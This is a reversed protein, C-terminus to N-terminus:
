LILLSLGLFVLGIVGCITPGLWLSRFAEIVADEPAAAHYVVTVTEGLRYPAPYSRTRSAFRVTRGDSLEFAVVPAFTVDNGSGRHTNLDVIVGPARKAQALWARTRMTAVVAVGLLIAATGYFVIRMLISTLSTSEGSPKGFGTM